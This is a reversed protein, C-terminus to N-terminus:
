AYVGECRHTNGTHGSINAAITGIIAFNIIAFIAISKEM